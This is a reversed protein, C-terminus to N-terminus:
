IGPDGVNSSMASTMDDPDLIKSLGFDGHKVVVNEEETLKILINGPKIDRHVIDRSHLFQIGNMIQKMLKIKSETPIPMQSHTKFFQDLDGLDCYDMFIWMADSISKVDYVKIIQSHVITEKLYHFKVAEASAKQKDKKSVKKVAVTTNDKYGKFVSGFAGRGVENLLDIKYGSFTLSVM